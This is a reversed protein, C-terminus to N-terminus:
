RAIEPVAAAGPQSRGTDRTAAGARRVLPIERESQVAAHITSGTEAESEPEWRFVSQVPAGISVCAAAREGIVHEALRLADEESAVTTYVFLTSPSENSM